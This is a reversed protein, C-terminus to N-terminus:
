RQNGSYEPDSSLWRRFEALADYHADVAIVHATAEDFGLTQLVMKTQDISHNRTIKQVFPRTTAQVETGTQVLVKALSQRQELAFEPDKERHWYYLVLGYIMTEARSPAGLEKSDHELMRCMSIFYRTMALKEGTGPRESQGDRPHAIPPIESLSRDHGAHSYGLTLKHSVGAALTAIALTSGIFSTRNM